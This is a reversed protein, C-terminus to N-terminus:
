MGKGWDACGSFEANPGTLIRVEPGYIKAAHGPAAPSGDPLIPNAIVFRSRGIFQAIDPLDFDLLVGPIVADMIGQHLRAGVIDRYSLFTGAVLVRAIRPEIAAAFLAILGATGKGIVGVRQADVDPRGVAYAFVSLLDFAQMGAITKGVLIARMDPDYVDSYVVLPRRTRCEGLGRLDAAVVVSGRGALQEYLGGPASGEAKGAESVAVLAPKRAAGGAPVFVLIPIRIGPETELVRREVRCGPRDFGGRDEVRPLGTPPSMRLRRAVLAPMQAAGEPSAAARRAHIGDAAAANRRQVTTADFSTLVQGTPTCNLAEIPEIATDPEPESHSCGQLWREMWAYTAERRPKSWSHTDDHEFYGAREGAGLLSYVRRVEEMSARTGAIPFFDRTAALVTFPKPAFAIPFDPFDLGDRLFNPFNQEADQPGLAVWLTEWSTIYCCPAAAALRPELVALYSTQTGGGSNGIVGIRSGDVDPRGSLYDVARIGDWVEYYAMNRGTLLCQLGSMTHAEPCSSVLLTGTAADYYEKREGEDPPDYALVVFGRRALNIFLRQGEEFAKGEEYHGMAALVAPYPGRGGAPVYVNATVYNAPQSQFVLKEVRYGERVLTGTIRAELPTREEPLGGISALITARIRGQREAVDAPAALSAISAARERLQARALRTCYEHVTESLGGCVELPDGSPPKSEPKLAV